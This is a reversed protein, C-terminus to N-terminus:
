CAPAVNIHRMTTMTQIVPRFTNPFIIMDAQIFVLQSLLQCIGACCKYVEDYSTMTQIDHGFTNPFVIM